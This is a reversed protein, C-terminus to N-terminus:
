CPIDRIRIEIGHFGKARRWGREGKKDRPWQVDPPTGVSEESMKYKEGNRSGVVRIKKRKIKGQVGTASGRGDREQRGRIERVRYMEVLQM